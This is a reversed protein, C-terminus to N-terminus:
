ECEKQWRGCKTCPHAVQHLGGQSRRVSRYKVQTCAANRGAWIMLETTPDRPMQPSVVALVDAMIPELVRFVVGLSFGSDVLVAGIVAEFVDCLPKPPDFAWTEVVLRSYPVDKIIELYESIAAILLPSDALLSKHLNLARVSLTGLVPNCM